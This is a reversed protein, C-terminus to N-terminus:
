QSTTLPIGIANKQKTGRVEGKRIKQDRQNPPQEIEWKHRRSMYQRKPNNKEQKSSV